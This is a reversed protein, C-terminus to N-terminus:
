GILKYLLGLQLAFLGAWAIWTLTERLRVSRQVAPALWFRLKVSGVELLDGNRLRTQEVREGNVSVLAGPRVQLHFGDRRQFHIDFHHDWVGDGEISLHVGPARGVSFPFRRAVCRRGAGPGAVVTLHIM